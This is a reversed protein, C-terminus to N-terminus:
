RVETKPTKFLVEVTEEEVIEDNATKYMTMVFTYRGEIFVQNENTRMTLTDGNTINTMPYTNGNHLLTGQLSFGEPLKSIDWSLEAQGGVFFYVIPKEM